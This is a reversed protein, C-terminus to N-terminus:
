MGFMSKIREANQAAVNYQNQDIIGRNMMQQMIQTPNMGMSFLQQAIQMPQMGQSKMQQIMALPDNSNQQQNMQSYLQNPM